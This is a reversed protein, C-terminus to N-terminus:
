PSRRREPDFGDRSGKQELVPPGDRAPAALEFDQDVKRNTQVDFYSQFKTESAEPWAASAVNITM